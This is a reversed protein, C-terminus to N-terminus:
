PGKRLRHSLLWPFFDPDTYAPDWANHGVGPYETYRVNGGAAKLAQAMRRSEEVSITEDASGHFIWVPTKGIKRAVDAYPDPATSIPPIAITPPTRIGGCVPVIAAFKGAQRSAFWWTGYGGMSLGTLYVRAPDGNFERMTQELAKLVMTEMDADSWWRDARCRPFVVIAASQKQYTTFRPALLPEPPHGYTGSHGVGHLFLIVPWKKQPTWSPPVFIEYLYSVGGVEVARFQIGTKAQASCELGALCAVAVLLVLARLRRM